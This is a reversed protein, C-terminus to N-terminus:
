AFFKLIKDAAVAREHLALETAAQSRNWVIVPPLSLGTMKLINEVREKGMAIIVKPNLEEILPAIYLHATKQAVYESFRSKSDTRWPLCNSYAIQKLSLKGAGIVESCHRKWVQWKECENRYAEEARAFNEETPFQAFQLISPMMRSDEQNRNTNNGGNGPNIGLLLIRFTSYESGVFGFQPALDDKQLIPSRGSPLDPDVKPFFAERGLEVVKRATIFMPMRIGAQRKSVSFFEVGTPDTAMGHGLAM